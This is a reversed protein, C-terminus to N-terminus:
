WDLTRAIEVRAESYFLIFFFINVIIFAFGFGILYIPYGIVPDTFLLLVSSTIYVIPNVINLIATIGTITPNVSENRITLIAAGILISIGINLASSFIGVMIVQPPTTIDILTGPLLISPVIVAVLLVPGYPRVYRKMLGMLGLGYLIVAIYWILTGLAIFLAWTVIPSPIASFMLELNFLLGPIRSVILLIVGVAGAYLLNSGSETTITQAEQSDFSYGDEM